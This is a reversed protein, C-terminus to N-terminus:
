KGEYVEDGEKLGEKIEVYSGGAMGTTIYRKTRVGNEKMYVFNGGSDKQLTLTPVSLVHEARAKVGAFIATDGCEVDSDPDTILMNTYVNDNRARIKLYVAEDIPIYELAYRKGDILAYTDIYSDYGKPQIYDTLVVLRSTDAIAIYFTDTNVYDGNQVQEMAVVIGDFPATIVNAGLKKRCESVLGAYYPRDVNYTETLQKIELEKAKIQNAIVGAKSCYETFTPSMYEQADIDAYTEKLEINLQDLELNKIQYAYNYDSQIRELNDTLSELEEELSETDTTALVQGEKVSDGLAVNYSGFNGEKPFSLEVTYYTVQGEYFNASELDRYKVSTTRPEQEKNVMVEKVTKEENGKCGAISLALCAFAIMLCIKKKM